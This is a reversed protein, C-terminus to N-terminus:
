ERKLGADGKLDYVERIDAEVTKLDVGKNPLVRKGYLDVPVPGPASFSMDGDMSKKVQNYRDSKVRWM